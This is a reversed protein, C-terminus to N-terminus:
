GNLLDYGIISTAFLDGPNCKCVSTSKVYPVDGCCYLQFTITEIFDYTM